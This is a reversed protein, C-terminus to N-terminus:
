VAGAPQLEGACIPDVKLAMRVLTTGIEVDAKGVRHGSTRRCAHAIIRGVATRQRLGRLSM